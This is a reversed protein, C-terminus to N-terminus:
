GLPFRSLGVWGLPARPAAGRLRVLILVTLWFLLVLAANVAARDYKERCMAESAATLVLHGVFLAARVWASRAAFLYYKAVVAAVNLAIKSGAFHRSAAVAAIPRCTAFFRELAQSLRWCVLFDMAYPVSHTVYTRWGDAILGATRPRGAAVFAFYLLATVGALASASVLWRGAGLVADPTVLAPGGHDM